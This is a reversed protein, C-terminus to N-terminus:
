VRRMVVSSMISVQDATRQRMTGLRPTGPEGGRRRTRTPGRSGPDATRPAAPRPPDLAGRAHSGPRSSTTNAASTRTARDRRCSSRSPGREARLEEEPSADGMERRVDGPEDGPAGEANATAIAPSHSM